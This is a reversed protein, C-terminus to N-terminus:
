ALFPNEIRLADFARGHQLDESYLVDCRAARASSVVLADYINLGHTSALAVAEDHVAADIALPSGCLDRIAAVAALVETWPQALKRRTVSVFENLVQVSVVGGTSLLQLAAAARRDNSALAYILVNTDFFAKGSMLKM